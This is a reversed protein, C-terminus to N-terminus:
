LDIEIKIDNIKSIIIKMVYGIRQIEVSEQLKNDMAWEINSQNQKFAQYIIEWSYNKNLENLRKVLLLSFEYKLLHLALKITESKTLKDKQFKDYIEKSKYYKNKDNEKVCYFISTDGVEKTAQCICKRM